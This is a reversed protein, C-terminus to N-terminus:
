RDGKVAARANDYLDRAVKVGFGCIVAERMADAAVVVARLADREGTLTAITAARERSLAQWYDIAGHLTGDGALVWEPLDDAPAPASPPPALDAVEPTPAYVEVFRGDMFELLPRIWVVGNAVSRYVMQLVGPASELQGVDIYEYEGGTKVHRYRQRGKPAAPTPASPPVRAHRGAHGKQLYCEQGFQDVNDCITTPASPPATAEIDTM